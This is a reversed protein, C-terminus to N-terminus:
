MKYVEPIIKDDIYKIISERVKEIFRKLEAQTNKKGNKVKLSLTEAFIKYAEREVLDICYPADDELYMLCIVDLKAVSRVVKLPDATLLELSKLERLARLYKKRGTFEIYSILQFFIKKQKKAEFFTKCPITFEGKATSYKNRSALTTARGRRVWDEAEVDQDKKPSKQNSSMPNVLGNNRLSEGRLYSRYKQKIREPSLTSYARKADNWEGLFELQKRKALNKESRILAALVSPDELLDPTARDGIRLICDIQDSSLKRTSSGVTDLERRMKEAYKEISSDDDLAKALDKLLLGWRPGRQIPTICLSGVDLTNGTKKKFEQLVEGLQKQHSTSDAIQKFVLGDVQYFTIYNKMSDLYLKMDESMVIKPIGNKIDLKQSRLLSVLRKSNLKIECALIEFSHLVQHHEESIANKKLLYDFLTMKLSKMTILQMQKYFALETAILEEFIMEYKPKKVKKEEIRAVDGIDNASASKKSRLYQERQRRTTPPKAAMWSKPKEKKQIRDVEQQYPHNVKTSPLKKQEGFVQKLPTRSIVSGRRTIHRGSLSAPEKSEKRVYRSMHKKSKALELSDKRGWTAFFDEVSSGGEGVAKAGTDNM